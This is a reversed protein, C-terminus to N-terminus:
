VYTKYHNLNEVHDQSDKANTIVDNYYWPFSDGLIVKKLENFYNEDLFNDVIKFM